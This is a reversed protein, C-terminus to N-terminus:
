EKVQGLAGDSAIDTKQHALTKNLMGAASPVAAVVDDTLILGYVLGDDQLGTILM